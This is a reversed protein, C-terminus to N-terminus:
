TSGRGAPRATVLLAPGSGAWAPEAVRVGVVWVMRGGAVLVPWRPRLRSPVGGERLVDVVRKTGDRIALTEGPRAARVELGESPALLAHYRGVPRPAPPEPGAAATLEWGGFRARGPVPLRAPPLPEPRGAPYVVLWPGERGALLDGSVPRPGGGGLAGLVEGVDRASGPYTGTLARLAARVVRGAVAEPLTALWAAPLRAEGGQVRVPVGAARAELVADDAAALAGARRLAGAVNPNVAEALYPIVETRLRSRRRRPDDNDPDDCFPLGAEAALARTEAREMELLPRVWRGRRQPIGSLGGAGAGRLLNGLVTEAQDDATHGGVLVEGPRAAAELAAYRADRLSGEDTGSGEAAVVEHDLGLRAAIEAAAAVLPASVALGHDVTVARAQRGAAVVVWALAASDAGGSLAIVIPADPLHPEARALVSRQLPTLGGTGAV